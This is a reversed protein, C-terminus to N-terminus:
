TAPSCSHPPSGKTEFEASLVKQYSVWVLPLEDKNNSFFHQALVQLTKAGKITDFAKIMNM